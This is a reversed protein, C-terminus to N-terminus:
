STASASLESWGFVDDVGLSDVVIRGTVLKVLLLDRSSALARNSDSLSAVLEQLHQVRESFQWCPEKGPDVVELHLADERNLGPVAAHSNRFTLGQLLYRLWVLPRDSCVYYTTDIPYFATEVWTVSGVNGKRGVVIGPGDVLALSHFGVVGSSGVVPVHGPQRDAAKLAKGYKLQLMEGLRILKWGPPIETRNVAGYGNLYKGILTTHYGAAQM